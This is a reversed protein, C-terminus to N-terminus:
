GLLVVNCIGIACCEMCCLMGHVVNWAACCEMDWYCLMAHLQTHVFMDRKQSQSYTHLCADGYAPIQRSFPV